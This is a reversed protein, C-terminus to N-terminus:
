SMLTWGASRIPFVRKGACTARGNVQMRVNSYRNLSAVDCDWTVNTENISAILRKVRVVRGSYDV